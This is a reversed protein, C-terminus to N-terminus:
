LASFNEFNEDLYFNSFLILSFSFFFGLFALGNKGNQLSSAVKVGPSGLSGHLVCLRSTRHTGSQLSMLSAEWM